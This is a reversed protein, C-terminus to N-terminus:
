ERIHLIADRGSAGDFDDITGIHFGAIYVPLTRTPFTSDCPAPEETEEEVHCVVTLVHITTRRISSSLTRSSATQRIKPLLM